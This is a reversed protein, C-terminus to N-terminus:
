FSSSPQKGDSSPGSRSIRPEGAPASSGAHTGNGAHARDAGTADAATSALRVSAGDVLRSAGETVVVSGPRLAGRVGVGEESLFAISVPTATVVGSEVVFVVASGQSARTLAAAPVVAVDSETWSFRVKAPLGSLFTDGKEPVVEIDAEYTGTGPRATRLRLRVRGKFVREPWADLTVVAEDGDHVRVADRDALPVRVTWGGATGSVRVVPRGPAMTEGVDALKADVWGDEPATIVRRALNFRAARLAADALGRQTRADDLAGQAVSDSQFLIEARKLDREAKDLALAAQTEGAALETEDVVALVQGRRVSSGREVTLAKLVGGVKFSLDFTHRAQLLGQARVRRTAGL